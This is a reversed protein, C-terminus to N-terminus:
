CQALCMESVSHSIEFTRESIERKQIELSFFHFIYLYIFLRTCTVSLSNKRSVSPVGDVFALGAIVDSDLLLM